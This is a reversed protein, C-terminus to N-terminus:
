GLHPDLAQSIGELSAKSQRAPPGKRGDGASGGRAKSLFSVSAKALGARAPPLIAQSRATSPLWLLRLAAPTAQEAM